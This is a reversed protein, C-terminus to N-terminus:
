TSPIYKLLFNIGWSLAAVVIPTYEGFNLDGLHAALYTLIAGGGAIAAGKGLKKVDVVDLSFPQSM